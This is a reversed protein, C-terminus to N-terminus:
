GQFGCLVSQPEDLGAQDAGHGPAQRLCTTFDEAGTLRRGYPPADFAAPGDTRAFDAADSELHRALLGLIGTSLKPPFFRLINWKEIALAASPTVAEARVRHELRSPTRALDHEGLLM